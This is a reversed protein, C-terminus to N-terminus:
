QVPHLGKVRPLRYNVDKSETSVILEPLEQTKAIQIRQSELSRLPPRSGCIM